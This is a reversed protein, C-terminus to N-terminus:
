KEKKIFSVIKYVILYLYFLFLIINGIIIMPYLNGLILLLSNGVLDTIYFSFIVNTITLVLFMLVIQKTSKLLKASSLCAHMIFTGLITNWYYFFINRYFTFSFISDIHNFMDLKRFYFTMVVLLAWGGLTLYFSTSRGFNIYILIAFLIVAGLIYPFISYNSILKGYADLSEALTYELEYIM